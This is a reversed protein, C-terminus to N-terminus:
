FGVGSMRKRQPVLAHHWNRTRDEHFGRLALSRFLVEFGCAMVLLVGAVLGLRYLLVRMPLLM